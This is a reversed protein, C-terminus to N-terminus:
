LIDLSPHAELSAGIRAAPIDGTTVQSIWGATKTWMGITALSVMDGNAAQGGALYITGNPDSTMAFDSVALESGTLFTPLIRTSVLSSSSMPLSLIDTAPYSSTSSAPVTLFKRLFLSCKGCSFTDAIGGVLMMEGDTSGNDVWAMQAGRRRIVGSPSVKEWTGNGALDLTHVLGDSSCSSTMGGIAVISSGDNTLSM